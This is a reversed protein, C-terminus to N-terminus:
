VYEGRGVYGFERELEEVLDLDEFWASRVQYDRRWKDVLTGGLLYDVHDVINPKLNLVKDDPYHTKLFEQFFYDDYRGEIVWLKYKPDDIAKDYFWAVCERALHNPIYVCPFTWMHQPEVYGTYGVNEDKDWVFGCVVTKGDDYQETISKFDRSIIVDDQLHWTGGDGWMSSFIEMCKSLNGVRCDDCRVDISNSNIGQKLMSPILYNNVYDLREECAHIIYNAM